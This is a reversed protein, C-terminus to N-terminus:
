FVIVMGTQIEKLPRLRKILLIIITITNNVIVIALICITIVVIYVDQM